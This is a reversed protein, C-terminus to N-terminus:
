HELCISICCVPTCERLSLPAEEIKQPTKLDSLQYAALRHRFGEVAAACEAQEVLAKAFM